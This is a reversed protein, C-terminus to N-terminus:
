KLSLLTEDVSLSSFSTLLMLAVRRRRDEGLQHNHPHLVVGGGQVHLQCRAGTHEVEGFLVQRGPHRHAQQAGDRLQQQLGHPREGVM